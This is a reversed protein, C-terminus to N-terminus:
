GLYMCCKDKPKNSSLIMKDARAGEILTWNMSEALCLKENELISIGGSKIQKLSRLGLTELSSKIIYLAAFDETLQRGWIVELNRDFLLM